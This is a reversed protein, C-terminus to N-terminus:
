APCKWVQDRSPPVGQPPQEKLDELMERMRIKRETEQQSWGAEQEQLWAKPKSGHKGLLLFEKSGLVNPEFLNKRRYIVEATTNQWLLM